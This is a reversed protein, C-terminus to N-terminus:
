KLYTKIIGEIARNFDIKAKNLWAKENPMFLAKFHKKSYANFAPSSNTQESINEFIMAKLSELTNFTSEGLTGFEFCTSYLNQKSHTNQYIYDIMDGDILYFDSQTAGLVLPYDLKTRFFNYDNKEYPSNIISMQDSPGYGTHLDVWVFPIKSTKLQAIEQKMLQTSKEFDLGQYYIGDPLIHQGYLTAVKFSRMGQKLIRVMTKYYFSINATIINNKAKPKFYNYAKEYHKNDSKFSDQSFNRNLDVNSENVRREHEFGYPNIPHYIIVKTHSLQSLNHNIFHELMIQGVYGEIGHLGSSLILNNKPPNKSPITIKDISLHKIVNLHNVHYNIQRRNLRKYIMEKSAQLGNAYM